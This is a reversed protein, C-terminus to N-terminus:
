WDMHDLFREWLRLLPREVYRAVLGTLWEAFPDEGVVGYPVRVVGSRSILGTAARSGIQYYGIFVKLENL